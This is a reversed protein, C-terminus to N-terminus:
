VLGIFVQGAHPIDIGGLAEAPPNGHDSTPEFVTYRELRLPDCLCFKSLLIDSPFFSESSAVV